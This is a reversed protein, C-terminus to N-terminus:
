YLFPTKREKFPWSFLTLYNHMYLICTKTIEAIWRDHPMTSSPMSTCSSLLAVESLIELLQLFLQHLTLMFVYYMNNEERELVVIPFVEKQVWWGNMFWSGEQYISKKSINYSITCLLLMKIVNASDSGALTINPFDHLKKQIDYSVHIYLSCQLVSGYISM